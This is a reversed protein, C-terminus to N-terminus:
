GRHQVRRKNSSIKHWDGQWVLWTKSNNEQRKGKVTRPWITYLSFWMQKAIRQCSKFALTVQCCSYHWRAKLWQPFRLCPRQKNHMRQPATWGNSDPSSHVSRAGAIDILIPSTLASSLAIARVHDIDWLARKLCHMDQLQCDSQEPYKSRRTHVDLREPRSQLHLVHNFTCFIGWDRKLAFGVPPWLQGRNGALCSILHKAMGGLMVGAFTHNM